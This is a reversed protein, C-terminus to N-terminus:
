YNGSLVHCIRAASHAFGKKDLVKDVIMELLLMVESVGEFNQSLKSESILTGLDCSLDDVNEETIRELVRKINRQFKWKHWSLEKKMMKENEPQTKSIPFQQQNRVQQQQVSSQMQSVEGKEGKIPLNCQAPFTQVNNKPDHFASPGELHHQLAAAADQAEQFSNDTQLPPGRDKLHKTERSIDDSTGFPINKRMDDDHSAPWDSPFPQESPSWTNNVLSCSNNYWSPQQTVDASSLTSDEETQSM